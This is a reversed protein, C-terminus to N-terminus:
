LAVFGSSPASAEFVVLVVGVNASVQPQPDVFVYEYVAATSTNTFPTTLRPGHVTAMADEGECSAGDRCPAFTVTRNETDVVSFSTGTLDMAVGDAASFSCDPLVM